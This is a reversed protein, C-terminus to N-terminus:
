ARDDAVETSPLHIADTARRARAVTGFLADRDAVILPVFRPGITGGEPTRTEREEYRSVEGTSWYGLLGYTTQVLHFTAPQTM